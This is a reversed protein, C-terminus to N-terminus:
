KNNKLYDKYLNSYYTVTESDFASINNEYLKILDNLEYEIITQLDKPYNMVKKHYEYESKDLIKYTGDPFVRLDYDYDIFKITNNEIIVPSSINCYYYIGSSKLQAIINFWRKKYYFVIAPEKTRWSRGDIETVKIKNNGFVYYEDTQGLFVNEDWIKYLDKNHKYGHINYKDGYQM